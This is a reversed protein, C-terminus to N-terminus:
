HRSTGGGRAAAARLRRAAEEVGLLELLEGLDPGHLRGTLAVRVPMFVDRGKLGLTRGQELLVRKLVSAEAQGAQLLESAVAQLLNPAKESDLVALAEGEPSPVDLLERVREPFEALCAVQTQFTRVALRADVRLGAAELLPRVREVLAAPEQARMYEGAMWRLKQVDFIAGSKSVRDLDFEQVLRELGLVEEGTSSSWGLLALYNLLAEPVYGQARYEDVYVQAGSLEGARKSLKRREADLILSVHAFEPRAHGLAEFLVVQRATNYLHENARIVHSIQMHADDVVCAFNYTPLGDSRLLVFDSLTAADIRCDGRLRDRFHILGDRLQFRIAPGHGARIQEAVRSAEFAQRPGRPRAARRGPRPRRKEASAPAPAGEETAEDPDADLEHEQPDDDYSPYALGAEVLRAAAAAYRERRESQRYPGFAGGRDPGEDWDLGLWRLDALLSAEFEPRSRRLDTDEIRLVMRGGAHRAFLWNFLATRVGGVHLRGTPSPAFRVRVECNRATQTEM